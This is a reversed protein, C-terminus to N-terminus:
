TTNIYKPIYPCFHIYESNFFFLDHIQTLFLLPVHSLSSPPFPLPFSTITNYNWFSFCQKFFLLVHSWMGIVWCTSVPLGAWIVLKWTLSLCDWPFSSSFYLFFGSVRGPSRCAHKHVQVNVHMCCVCVCICMYM